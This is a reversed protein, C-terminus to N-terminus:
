LYGKWVRAALLLLFGGILLYYRASYWLRVRNSVKTELNKVTGVLEGHANVMEMIKESAVLKGTERSYLPVQEGVAATLANANEVHALRSHGLRLLHVSGEIRKFGAFVSGVLVLLALLELTEPSCGIRAPQLQPVLYGLVATSIGTTFYDFRQAADRWAEYARVSGNEAM